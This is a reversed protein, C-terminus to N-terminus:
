GTEALRDEALAAEFRKRRESLRRRRDRRESEQSGYGWEDV